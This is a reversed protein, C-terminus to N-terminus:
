RRLPGITMLRWPMIRRKTLPVNILTIGIGVLLVSVLQDPQIQEKLFANAMLLGIVPGATLVIGADLSQVNRIARYYLIYPVIFSIVSLGLIMWISPPEKIMAFAEPEVFWLIASVIVLNTLSRIFVLFDLHNGSVFKKHFITTLSGAIAGVLIIPVGVSMSANFIDNWILVVTSSLLFAGGFIMRKTFHEKLLLVSFIVIFLPSISTLLIAESALVMQLGFLFCLPSIIGGTLTTLFIGLVDGRKISYRKHFDGRIFEYISLFIVIFLLNIFYLSLPTWNDLYLIKVFMPHTKSCASSLLITALAVRSTRPKIFPM